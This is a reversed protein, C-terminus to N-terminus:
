KNFTDKKLLDQLFSVFKRREALRSSAKLYEMRNKDKGARILDQEFTAIEELTMELDSEIESRAIKNCNYM